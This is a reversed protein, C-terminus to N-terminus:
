SNIVPLVRKTWDMPAFTEPTGSACKTPPMMPAIKALIIFDLWVYKFNTETNPRTQSHRSPPPNILSFNICDFAFTFNFHSNFFTRVRRVLRFPRQEPTFIQVCLHSTYRPLPAPSIDTPTTSCLNLQEPFRRPARGLAQSILETNRM